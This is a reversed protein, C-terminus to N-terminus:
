LNNGINMMWDIGFKDTVMGFAESWFTPEFPMSIEGGIALRDFAEQGEAVTPYNLAIMFGLVPSERGPFSDSAYIMGNGPLNLQANMVRNKAVEPCPMEAPMDGYLMKSVVKGGFLEAYFDMAEACTGNFFLYPIPQIPTTNM